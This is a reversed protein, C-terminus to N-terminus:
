TDFLEKEYLDFFEKAYDDFNDGGNIDEVGSQYLRTDKPPFFDKETLEYNIRKSKRKKSKRLNNITDM